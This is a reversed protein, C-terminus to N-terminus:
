LGSEWVVVWVKEIETVLQLAKNLGCGSPDPYDSKQTTESDLEGVCVLQHTCLLENIGPPYIFLEVSESM